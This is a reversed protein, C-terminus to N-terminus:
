EYGGMDKQAFEAIQVIICIKTEVEEEKLLM